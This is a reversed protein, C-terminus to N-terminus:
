LSGGDTWARGARYVMLGGSLLSVGLGIAGLLANGVTNASIAVILNFGFSFMHLIFAEWNNKRFYGGIFFGIGMVFIIYFGVPSIM